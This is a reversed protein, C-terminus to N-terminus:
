APRRLPLAVTMRAGGLPSDDAVLRGGHHLAVKRALALGLGTGHEKRSYFPVFIKEREAAPIGPGDDDVHVLLEREAPEGTVRVRGGAPAADCANRVLNTFMRRLLTEDGTVVPLAGGTEYRLEKTGARQRVDDGLEAFLRALDVNEVVLRTPNAFRLFDDVVRRLENCEQTIAAAHEAPAGEAQREILRAFGLISGLSNRFEHAVGASLEGLDAMSQRLRMDEQLRKVETLDNVIALAGRQTGDAARLPAISVSLDRRGLGPLNLRIEDRVVAEGSQLCATLRSTLEPLGRLAEAHPRGTLKEDAGLQLIERASANVSRISGSLDLVLAGALMSDIISANLEQLEDARHRELERLRRLETEKERLQEIMKRYTDVVFGTDDARSLEDGAGEPSRSAKELLALPRLAWRAFLALLAVFALTSGGQILMWMRSQQLSLALPEAQVEVRLVGLLRGDDGLVPQWASVTAYAPEDELGSEDILTEGASLRRQRSETLTTAASGDAGQSARDAGASITWGAPSLLEASAIGYLRELERSVSPRRPSGGKSWDRLSTRLADRHEDLVARAALRARQSTETALRRHATWQSLGAIGLLLVLYSGTVAVGLGVRGRFADHSRERV